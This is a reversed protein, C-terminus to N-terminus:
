AMRAARNALVRQTHELVHEADVRRVKASKLSLTDNVNCMM